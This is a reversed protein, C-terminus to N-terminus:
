SQHCRAREVVRDDTVRVDGHSLDHGKNLFLGDDGKRALSQWRANSREACVTIFRGCNRESSLNALFQCTTADVNQRKGFHSKLLLPFKQSGRLTQIM